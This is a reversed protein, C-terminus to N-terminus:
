RTSVVAVILFLGLGAFLAVSCGFLKPERERRAILAGRWAVGLTVGRWLSLGVIIFCVTAIALFQCAALEMAEHHPM